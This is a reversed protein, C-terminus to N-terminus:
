HPLVSLIEDLLKGYALPAGDGGTVYYWGQVKGFTYLLAENNPDLLAVVLEGDDTEVPVCGGALGREVMDYGRSLLTSIDAKTLIMHGIPIVSM